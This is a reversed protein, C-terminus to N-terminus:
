ATERCRGRGSIRPATRYAAAGRGFALSPAAQDQGGCSTQPPCIDFRGPGQAQLV